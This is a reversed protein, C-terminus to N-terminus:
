NSNDEMAKEFLSSFAEAFFPSNLWIAIEDEIEAGKKSVYFLIESKDIIFFKAQINIKKFKIAFKESLEKILKEDGSLAVKIKIKNNKLREFTQGFLKIKSNLDEVDTCIVVEKEANQLIERLQNSINAKGKM